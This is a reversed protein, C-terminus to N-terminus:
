DERNIPTSFSLLRSNFSLKKSEGEDNLVTGMSMEAGTLDGVRNVGASAVDWFGAKEKRENFVLETFKQKAFEQLSLFESPSINPKESTNHIQNFEIKDNQNASLIKSDTIIRTNIDNTNISAILKNTDTDLTNDEKMGDTTSAIPIGVKITIASARSKIKHTTSKIKDEANSKFVNDSNSRSNAKQSTTDTSETSTKEEAVFVTEIEKEMFSFYFVLLVAISAALALSRYVVPRKIQFISHKLSAKKDFLEATLPLRTKLFHQHIQIREQNQGIYQKLSVSEQESLDGEMEAICYFEFNSECVADRLDINKLNEKIQYNIPDSQLSIKELGEIEERLDDNNMLFAEMEHIQSDTLIGDLYDIFYAEYNERTINM